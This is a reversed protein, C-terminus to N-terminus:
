HDAGRPAWIDSVTFGDRYPDSPDLVWEARGSVWARGSITPLVAPTEGVTTEGVITGIFESDIISRHVFPEGVGLQGRAHLAAMRASTGTGCPSRDLAGTWTRPDDAVLPGNSLIVTNRNTKGDAPAGSHMMVLSVANISPNTPHQVRIQENAALKLLVGARTLEKGVDPDLVLGCDEARAQVFFQGGFVIDVPVTGLEPVELPFDLEVVYSPVNFVTVRTVRGASVEARATVLGVATDIRVETIPEAADIHGTEILATVTCITNSGSMPTFGGQELVILGFDADESVAPLVFVACLAPNGRPEHLILKRLGQLNAECYAFREEMTAGRVFDSANLIVRGAEGEAHAEITTLVVRESM